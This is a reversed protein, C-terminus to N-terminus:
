QGTGLLKVIQPNGTTVPGSSSQQTYNITLTGPIFGVTGPKFTVTLTCSAGPSLSATCDDSEAYNGSVTIKGVFTVTQTTALNPDNLLTITLPASTKGATQTGFDL